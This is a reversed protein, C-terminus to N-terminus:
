FIQKIEIFHGIMKPRLEDFIERAEEITECDALIEIGTMKIDVICYM